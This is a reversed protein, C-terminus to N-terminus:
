ASLLAGYQYNKFLCCGSSWTSRAEDLSSSDQRYYYNFYSLVLVVPIYIGGLVWSLNILKYYHKEFDSFDIADSINKARDIFFDMSMVLGESNDVVNAALWRKRNQELEM